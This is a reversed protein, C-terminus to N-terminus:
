KKVFKILSEGLQVMYVGPSLKSANVNTKGKVINLKMIEQGNLNFITAVGAEQSVITFQHEVSSPFIYTSISGVEIDKTSTVNNNEEVADNYEPAEITQNNNPMDEDLSVTPGDNQTSSVNDYQSVYFCVINNPIFKYQYSGQPKFAVVAYYVYGNLDETSFDIDIYGTQNPTMMITKEVQHKRDIPQGSRSATIFFLAKGRYGNVSKMYFRARFTNSSKSITAYDRGLYKGNQSFGVSIQTADNKVTGPKPTPKQKITVGGASWSRTNKDAWMATEKGNSAKYSVMLNYNGPSLTKFNNNSYFTLDIRQDKEITLTGSSIKTQKGNSDVTYLNIYDKYNVDGNNAITINFKAGSGQEVFVQAGNMIQLDYGHITPTPDTDSNPDKTVRITGAGPITITKNNNDKYAIALNYQGEEINSFDANFSIPKKSQAFVTTYESAVIKVITQDSNYAVLYLYNVFGKTKNNNGIQLSIYQDKAQNVESQLAKESVYLDSGAEEETDNDPTEVRDPKLYRIMQQGYSYGSSSGGIGQKGPELIDLDYWGNEMYNWGWDVHVYGETAYGDLVFCHGGDNSFGAYIVPGYNDMEDKLENIWAEKTRFSSRSQWRVTEKYKFNNVLPKVAYYVQTGSGGLRAPGYNMRVAYGVDRLLRGINDSEKETCRLGTSRNIGRSTVASPMNNEWDYPKNEPADEKDFDLSMLQRNWTYSIQGKAKDPWQHWRLVTSIATAVCGSVTPYTRGKYTVNPCYRNFPWDQGWSIPQTLKTKRDHSYGLLPAREIEYDSASRLTTQYPIDPMTKIAYDMQREYEDFLARISPNNQISETSLHGTESFGLVPKVRDDGSVIVYGGKEGENIVYFYNLDSNQTDSTNLTKVPSSYTMRLRASHGLFKNAIQMAEIKGVPAASIASLGIFLLSCLITIKKNM